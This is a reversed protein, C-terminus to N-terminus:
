EVNFPFWSKSNKHKVYFRRVRSILGEGSECSCRALNVFMFVILSRLLLKHSYTTDLSHAEEVSFVDRLQYTYM